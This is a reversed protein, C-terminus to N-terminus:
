PLPRTLLYRTRAARVTILRNVREVTGAVSAVVEENDVYTGHGSCHPSILKDECFWTSRVYRMFSQSSTITEGPCTLRSGSSFDEDDFDLDMEMDDDTERRVKSDATYADYSITAPFSAFTVMNEHLLIATYSLCYLCRM